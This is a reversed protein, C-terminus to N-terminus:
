LGTNYLSGLTDSFHKRFEVPSNGTHKKFAKSFYSFNDYGVRSAILSISLRSYKLLRKAQHM